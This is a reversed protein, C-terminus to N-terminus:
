GVEAEPALALAAARAGSVTLSPRGLVVIMKDVNAVQLLTLVRDFLESGTHEIM